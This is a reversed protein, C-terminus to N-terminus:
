ALGCVRVGVPEPGMESLFDGKGELSSLIFHTKHLGASEPLTRLPCLCHLSLQGRCPSLSWLSQGPVYYGLRVAAGLGPM